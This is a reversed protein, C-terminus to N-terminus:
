VRLQGLDRSLTLLQQGGRALFSSFEQSYEGGVSVKDISNKMLISKTRGGLQKADLLIVKQQLEALRLACCIGALGGGVVVVDCDKSVEM